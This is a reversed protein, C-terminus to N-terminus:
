NSKFIQTQSIPAPDATTLVWSFFFFIYSHIWTDKSDISEWVRQYLFENEITANMHSLPFLSIFVIHISSTFWSVKYEGDSAYELNKLYNYIISQIEMSSFHDLPIPYLYHHHHLFQFLFYLLHWWYFEIKCKCLTKTAHSNYKSEFLPSGKEDNM